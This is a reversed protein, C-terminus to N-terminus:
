KVEIKMVKPARVDSSDPVVVDRSESAVGRRQAKDIAQVRVEFNGPKLKEFSVKTGNVTASKVARGKGDLLEVQYSVAEAIAGWSLEMNGRRNAKVPNSVQQGFVPAALLPALQIDLTKEESRAVAVGEENVAEVTMTWLGPKPVFGHFLPGGVNQKAILDPADEAHRYSVRYGNAPVPSANWEIQLEPKETFYFFKEKEASKWTIQPLRSISFSWTESVPSKKQDAGISYVKWDYLGPDLKEAVFQPSAAVLERETKKTKDILILRYQSAGPAPKWGFTVNLPKKDDGQIKAANSPLELTPARVTKDLSTTFYQIESSVPETSKKLFGTVRWYYSGAKPVDFDFEDKADIPVSKYGAKFDKTEATELVLKELKGPNAWRFKVNQEGALLALQADKEPALPVPPRKVSVKLRYVGSVIQDDPKAPDFAVIRWFHEGPPLAGAIRGAKVSVATQPKLQDRARGTELRVQYRPELAKKYEWAIADKVDPLVFVEAQPAPGTIDFPDATAQVGGVSGKFVQMDLKGNAGKGLSLEAGGVAIEKGGTKLSLDAGEGGKVFLNGELFDLALKGDNKELTILSGPELEIVAGSDLIEITAMSNERTRIQEGAFLNDNQSLSQWILRRLPRRTVDNSYETIRAIPPKNGYDIGGSQGRVYWYETGAACAVSLVLSTLLRKMTKSM